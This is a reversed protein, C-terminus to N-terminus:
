RKVIADAEAMLTQYQALAANVAAVTQTPPPASGEQTTGYLGLLQSSIQSLSAPGAGGGRGGRGRGGGGDGALAQIRQALATDGASQARERAQNLRPLMEHIRGIADYVKKSLAFQQQLALTGSKVRPDMKVVLPQTFSTGNATLKVTYTGPVVWPGKPEPETDGPTASIPYNQSAGAPPPYHLDWVFRHIGAASSVVRTPRIWYYPVNGEDRIERPKDDSSYRRVVGGTGNLVEIAV